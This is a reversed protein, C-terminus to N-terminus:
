AVARRDAVRWHALLARVTDCRADLAREALEANAAEAFVSLVPAGAAITNGQGPVDRCWTPFAADAPISIPHRAYVVGLARCAGRQALLREGFEQVSREFSLRHWRVLGEPFADDYLEFTATPRPNVELAILAEGDLLFDLGALGRLGTVRVLRDLRWQVRARLAAALHAGAVAGAYCFAAEGLAEVRLRNFGLLYARDGDALFTVSMPRGRVVRQFYVRPGASADGAPRVHVGGAGGVEKRLWGRRDDPPERRTVPASWGTARLLAIGLEPDKLAAIIPADNAYLRGHTALRSLLEPTQELGSGIVIDLECGRAEAALAALLREPDIAIGDDVAVCAVEAVARTDRDGFADLVVVREGGKAASQALARGSMAIVVLRRSM